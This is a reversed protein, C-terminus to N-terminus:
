VNMEDSVMRLGGNQIHAAAENKDLLKRMEETSKTAKVPKTQACHREGYNRQVLDHDCEAESFQNSATSNNSDNLSSGLGSSDLPLDGNRPPPPPPPEPSGQGASGSTSGRNSIFRHNSPQPGSVPAGPPHGGNLRKATGSQSVSDIARAYPGGGSYTSGGYQDSEEDSRAPDDYTPSFTSNSMRSATMDGPVTSYYTSSPPMSRSAPSNVFHQQSGHGNQHPFTQFNNGAQQPDMEERFGLLHFTAYPCIEDDGGSRLTDQSGLPQPPGGLPIRRGPPPHLSLEEYMPRRPDWTAHTGRGSGGGRKIRDCTNYQSGPVPPLKRNPPPIYGLEERFGPHRKDMTSPPPM